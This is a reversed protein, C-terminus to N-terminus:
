PGRMTVAACAEEERHDNGQGSKKRSHLVDDGPRIM